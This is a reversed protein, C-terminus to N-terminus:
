NASSRLFLVTWCRTLAEDNGGNLRRQVSVSEVDEQSLVSALIARISAFSLCSSPAEVTDATPPRGPCGERGGFGTAAAAAAAAVELGRCVGVCAGEPPALSRLRAAGKGDNGMMGDVVCGGVLTSFPSGRTEEAEAGTRGSTLFDARGPM